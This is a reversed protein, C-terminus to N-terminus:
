AVEKVLIPNTYILLGKLKEYGMQGLIDLYNRVQMEDKNSVSGTKFDIVYWVDGKKVMRDIRYYKGGPLIVPVERRVEDVHEFFPRVEPNYVIEKIDDEPFDEEITRIGALLGHIDVGARQSEWDRDSLAAAGKMQIAAKGRWPQSEYRDLKRELNERLKETAEPLAGIVLKGDKPQWDAHAQILQFCLDGVDALRNTKPMAGFAFLSTVPRTLSVYLMNLADLYAALKEQWYRGKWYTDKLKSSYRLPIVPLESLPEAGDAAVWLIEQQSYTDHDLKWSLFPVIVIPFELGKAKHITLIKIANNEDAIQIARDKRVNEWWELFSPIDGREKKSYDLVADQFGQLYTIESHIENLEFLQIINEIMEYLPLTKLQDKGNVFAKPAWKRWEMVNFFIAEDTLLSDAQIFRRYEFAWEALVIKDEEDRLWKILSIIFQVVHSSYLYLAESSVVDYKLSVDAEGSKKHNMFADAILKGEGLTRTLIAVDRLEYGQRQVHEVIGITRQIADKKWGPGGELFSIEVLGGSETREPIQEAAQYVNLIEHLSESGELEPFHAKTVDSISSFLWNNFTVLQAASRWNSVLQFEETQYDGIEAKVQSNLLRWDGGRWRYISQKSDGVIMSRDGSDVANKVLPNFNNWQFLSTDQFEDILYHQFISGVKEYIFPTDSTDIIQRLFDPLDAILMVDNGDRYEQMEDNIASLIGFTYFYRYVENISTYAELGQDIHEILAEYAPFIGEQCATILLPDKNSEKTLWKSLDGAASRRTDSITFDGDIAKLFLGAPGSGKRSFADLGGAAEVAVMGTEALKRAQIQFARREQRLRKLFSEFFDKKDKLTFVARAHIKFEDKLIEKSLSAIDSRFDWSKGEEVKEEAFQLLWERVQRNEENGIKSLLSDIVEQMIKDIDLDISFTGQLGMEKAFSRIVQHFFSDITVVSFRGYEHLIASMVESARQNLAEDNFGLEKKLESRM